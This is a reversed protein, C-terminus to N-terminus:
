LVGSLQSAEIFTEV